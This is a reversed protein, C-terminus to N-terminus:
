CGLNRLWFCMAPPSSTSRAAFSARPGGHGAQLRREAIIRWLSRLSIGLYEAADKPSYALPTITIGESM